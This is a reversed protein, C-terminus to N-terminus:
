NIIDTDMIIYNARHIYLSKGDINLRTMKPLNKPVTVFVKKGEYVGIPVGKPSLIVVTKEKGIKNKIDNIYRDVPMLGVSKGTKIETPVSYDEVMDLGDEAFIVTNGVQIMQDKNVTIELVSSNFQEQEDDVAKANKTGEFLEIGVRSGDMTLTKNAYHDYVSINFHQGILEGKTVAIKDKIVACGSLSLVIIMIIALKKINKM